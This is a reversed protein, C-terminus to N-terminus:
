TLTVSTKKILTQKRSKLFTNILKNILPAVSSLETNHATSKSPRRERKQLISQLGVNKKRACLANNLMNYLLALANNHTHIDATILSDPVATITATFSTTPTILLLNTLTLWILLHLNLQIHRKTPTLQAKCTILL